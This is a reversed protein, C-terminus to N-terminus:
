AEPWSSPQHLVPHTTLAEDSWSKMLLAIQRRSLARIREPTCTESGALFRLNQSNIAFILDSALDLPLTDSIKGKGVYYRLLRNIYNKFIDHNEEFPDRERDHSKAVAAILERWLLKDGPARINRMNTYILAAFGLSPEEPPDNVLREFAEDAERRDEQLIEILVERKGAFYNYVTPTSVLARAAIDEM